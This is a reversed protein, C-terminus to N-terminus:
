ISLDAMVHARLLNAAVAMGDNARELARALELVSLATETEFRGRLVCATLTREASDAAHELDAVRTIAALADETDALQGEPVDVAAAIGSALAEAGSMAAACLDAILRLVQPDLNEPLLSAIFAAEELEDITAEMTNALQGITQSAGLRAVTNRTEIVLRDAKQEVRQAFAALAPGDSPRGAQQDALYQGIRAVIERALGTQRTLASLLTNDTREFRRVLDAEIEDRVIRVSREQLLAEKSVRLVNKLFEVTDERGLAGSLREGFGIRAAAAHRVAAAVLGSGGM